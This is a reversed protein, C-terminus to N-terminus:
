PQSYLCVVGRARLSEAVRAVDAKNEWPNGIVGLIQLKSFGEWEVPFYNLNNRSVDLNELDNLDKLSGPLAVLYNNNVRLVRLQKLDQVSAPLSSLKNDHVYLETLNSLSGLAEPLEKLQNNSLYLVRLNVLRSIEPGIERLNNYYLDIQRLNTLEFIGKPISTLKNQYLSLSELKKLSGIAPHIYTILNYNLGLKRLNPFKSICLPVKEIKNKQLNIEQLSSSGNKLDNLTLNNEILSLKILTRNRSIRPFSTMDINRSLELSDISKFNRYSRPLNEGRIGRLVLKTVTVNKRLKLKGSINNNYVYVSQLRPLRSLEKGLRKVSTNVLELERLQQCQYIEEPLASLKNDAFSLQTVAEPKVKGEKLDQYSTFNKSAEYIVRYGVIKDRFTAQLHVLSDFKRYENDTLNRTSNSGDDGAGSQGKKFIKQIAESILFYDASDRKDAFVPISQQGYINGTVVMLLLMTLFRTLKM